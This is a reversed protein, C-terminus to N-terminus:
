RANACESRAARKSRPWPRSWPSSSPRVAPAEVAVLDGHEVACAAPWIMTEARTALSLPADPCVTDTGPARRCARGRRARSNAARRRGRRCDRDRRHGGERRHGARRRRRHAAAISATTSRAIAASPASATPMMCVNSSVVSSYVLIRFCNPRGSDALWTIRWRRASMAICHSSAREIASRAASIASASGTARLRAADPAFAFIPLHARKTASCDTCSCPAMPTVSSSSM